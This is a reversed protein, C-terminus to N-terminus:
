MWLSRRGLDLQQSASSEKDVFNSRTSPEYVPLMRHNRFTTSESKKDPECRWIVGLETGVLAPLMKM